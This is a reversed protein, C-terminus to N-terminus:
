SHWHHRLRYQLVVSFWSNQKNEAVCVCEKEASMYKMGKEAEPTTQNWNVYM